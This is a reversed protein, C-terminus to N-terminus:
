IEAYFLWVDSLYPDTEPMVWEHKIHNLIYNVVLYNMPTKQDLDDPVRTKNVKVLIEMLALHMAGEYMQLVSVQHSRLSYRSAHAMSTASYVDSVVERLQPIDNFQLSYIGNRGKCFSKDLIQIAMSM